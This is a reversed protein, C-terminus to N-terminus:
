LRVDMREDVHEPEAVQCTSVAARAWSEKHGQKDKPSHGIPKARAMIIASLRLSKKEEGQKAAMEARLLLQQMEHQQQRTRHSSDLLDSIYIAAPSCCM